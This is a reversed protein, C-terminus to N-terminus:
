KAEEPTLSAGLIEEFEWAYGAILAARDLWNIIRRAQFYDAPGDGPIYDALKKGTFTGLRMGASMIQYAIDPRLALEPEVYLDVDLLDSMKLYNSVGTIQVYGRGRLRYGDGHNVNGLRKGIKTGPEYKDFYARPGREVIPQYTDATEHKTTALMYAAWRVDQIEQDEEIFGLLEQLGRVRGVPLKGPFKERYADFFRKRDFRM